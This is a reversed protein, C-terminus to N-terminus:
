KLKKLEKLKIINSRLTALIDAAIKKDPLNRVMYYKNDINSKMFTM